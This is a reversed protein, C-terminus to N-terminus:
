SNVASITSTVSTVSIGGALAAASFVCLGCFGCVVCSTCATCVACSNSANFNAPVELSSLAARINEETARGEYVLKGIKARVETENEKVRAVADALTHSEDAKVMEDFLELCKAKMEQGKPDAKAEAADVGKKSLLLEEMEQILEQNIKM